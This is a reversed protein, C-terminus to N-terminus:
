ITGTPYTLSKCPQTLLGIECHVQRRGLLVNNLVSIHVQRNDGLVTKELKANQLWCLPDTVDCSRSTSANHRLIRRNNKCASIRAFAM